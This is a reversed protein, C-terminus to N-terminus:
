YKTQCGGSEICLRLRNNMSNILNDITPQEIAEWCRFTIDILENTTEPAAEEVKEKIIHWLNEIPNLDPSSSPWNEIVNCYNRLYNMTEVSTHCTAGDQVLFWGRPGYVNNMGPIIGSEDICEDVYVVSDVTGEVTILPTKYHQAIGGFMLVRKPFKRQYHTVCDRHDGRKRWLWHKNGDKYFSSEDVFIARSWDTQNEIHYKAFMMRNMKQTDTLFFTERPPLYQVKCQKLVQRILEPSLEIRHPPEKMDDSIKKCSRRPDGYSIACIDAVVDETRKSPRGRSLSTIFIPQKRSHLTRVDIIM